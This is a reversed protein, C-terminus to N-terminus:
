FMTFITNGLLMWGITLMAKCHARTMLWTLKRYAAGRKVLNMVVFAKLLLALM